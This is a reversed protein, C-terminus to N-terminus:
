NAVTQAAMVPQDLYGRLAVLRRSFIERDVMPDERLESARFFRLLDVLLELGGHLPELLPHLARFRRGGFCCV